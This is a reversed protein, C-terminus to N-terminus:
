GGYLFVGGVNDCVWFVWVGVVGFSVIDWVVYFM